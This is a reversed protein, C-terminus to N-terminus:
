KMGSMEGVSQVREAKLRVNLVNVQVVVIAVCDRSDVKM